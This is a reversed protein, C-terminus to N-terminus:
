FQRWDDGFVGNEEVRRNYADVAERNEELWKTREAAKILEALREEAARSVNLGLSRARALIHKDISVNTVQKNTRSRPMAM